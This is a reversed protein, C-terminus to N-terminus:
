REPEKDGIMDALKLIGNVVGEMGEESIRSNEFDCLFVFRGGQEYIKFLLVAKPLEEFIEQTGYILLPIVANEDLSDDQWYLGASVRKEEMRRKSSIQLLLEEMNEAKDFDISIGNYSDAEDCYLFEIINQETLELFLLGVACLVIDEVGIGYKEAGRYLKITEEETLFSSLLKRGERPIGEYSKDKGYYEEPLYLAKIGQISRGVISGDIKKALEYITFAEYMDSIELIDPYVENVKALMHILLLSTGGISFFNDYIGISDSELIEKWISLMWAEVPTNAEAATGEVLLDASEKWRILRNSDTKGSITVPIENVRYFHEPIMYETLTRSLSSRIYGGTVDNNLVLFADLIKRHSENESVVVAAELVEEIELLRTKIEGLEIRLGNIKVQEDMRGIFEIAGNDCWRGRDGTYYLKEYFDAEQLSDELFPNMRFKEKTMPENNLYGKSVGAGAICIEGYAGIGSLCNNEDVIYIKTNAIPAGITVLKNKSLLKMSSWITTETPGYMNFIKADSFTSIKKYLGDSFTEGGILIETLSQMWKTDAAYKLLLEMRTPTTQLMQIEHKEILRHLEGINLIQSEDAIVIQMGMVLPMITELFSIDFSLSTLSLIKKQIVFDITETIGYIFNILNKNTIPVGKPNGTSGSTYLVYVLESKGTDKSYSGSGERNDQDLILLNGMLEKEAVYRQKTVIVCVKADEQMYRIGSAPKRIDIPLYASGLKLIALLVAITETGPELLVGTIDGSKVGKDALRGSYYDVLVLLEGYSTESDRFIIATNNKCDMARAQFMHYVSETMPYNRRTRNFEGLIKYKDSESIMQFESIMQNGKSTIEHLIQGLTNLFCDARLETYACCNYILECTLGDNLSHFRFALEISLNRNLECTLEREHMGEMSIMVTSLSQKAGKSDLEDFVTQLPIFQYQYGKTVGQKVKFLLEKYTQERDIINRLAIYKNRKLAEPNSFLVPTYVIFEKEGTYHYFLLNVASLLIMYLGQIHSSCLKNLDESLKSGYSKKIEKVSYGDRERDWPLVSTNGHSGFTHRLYQIGEELENLDSMKVGMQQLDM